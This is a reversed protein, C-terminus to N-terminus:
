RADREARGARVAAAGAEGGVPKRSAVRALAEELTPLDALQELEARLYESLSKGDRGAKAKLRKHTRASIGRVQIISM